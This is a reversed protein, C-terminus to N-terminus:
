FDSCTPKGYISTIGTKEIEFTFVINKQQKNYKKIKKVHKVSRFFFHRTWMDETCLLLPPDSASGAVDLISHKTIITFPQFVNVLIM